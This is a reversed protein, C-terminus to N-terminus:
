DLKSEQRGYWSSPSNMVGNARGDEDFCVFLVRDPSKWVWGNLETKWISMTGQQSVFGSKGPPYDPAGLLEIVQARSMGTAVKDFNEQKIRDNNSLIAAILLFAGCILIALIAGVAGIRKRTM